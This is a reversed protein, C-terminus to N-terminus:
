MKVWKGEPSKIYVEINNEITIIATSGASCRTLDKLDEASTCVYENVGYQVDGDNSITSYM